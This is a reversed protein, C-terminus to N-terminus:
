TGGPTLHRLADIEWVPRTRSGAFIQAIDQDWGGSLRPSLTKVSYGEPLKVITNVIEVGRGPDSDPTVYFFLLSGGADDAVMWPYADSGFLTGIGEGVTGSERFGRVASSVANFTEDISFPGRVAYTMGCAEVLSFMRQKLDFEPLGPNPGPVLEGGFVMKSVSEARPASARSDGKTHAPQSKRGFWGM